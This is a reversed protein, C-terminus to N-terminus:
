RAPLGEEAEDSRDVWMWKVAVLMVIVFITGGTWGFVVYGDSPSLALVLSTAWGAIWGATVLPLWHLRRTPPGVLTQATGVFVGSIGAVLMAHLVDVPFVAAAVTGVAHGAGLALSTALTWSAISRRMAWAGALGIPLGAILGAAFAGGADRVPGVALHAVFGGVPFSAGFAVWRLM